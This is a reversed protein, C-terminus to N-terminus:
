FPFDSQTLGVNTHIDSFTQDLVITSGVYLLQRIPWHTENSLYLVQKTIGRDSAPDAVDLVLESISHGDLVGALETLRGPVNAYTEVVNQMLGDPITYGRISTARGDHLNVKLHIGSLIGGQHGSVQNGGAWVGGSGAGDGSTILTKAFHPKMFSYQYVRDQVQTGLIEHSHLQYTYDNVSAFATRFAAIAPASNEASAARAVLGLALLATGITFFRRYLTM